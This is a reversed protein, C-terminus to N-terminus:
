TTCSGQRKTSCSKHMLNESFYTNRLTSNKLIALKTTKTKNKHVRHYLGKETQLESDVPVLRHREHRVRSALARMNADQANRHM